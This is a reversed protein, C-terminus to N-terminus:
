MMEMRGAKLLEKRQHGSNTKMAGEDKERNWGMGGDHGRSNNSADSFDNIM